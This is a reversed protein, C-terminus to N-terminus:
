LYVICNHVGMLLFTTLEKYYKEPGKFSKIDKSHGNHNSGNWNGKMSLVSLTSTVSNDDKPFIVSTIKDDNDFYESFDM